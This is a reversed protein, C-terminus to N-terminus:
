VKMEERVSHEQISCSLMLITNFIGLATKNGWQTKYRFDRHGKKLKTANHERDPKLELINAWEIGKIHRHEELHFDCFRKEGIQGSFAVENKCHQCKM